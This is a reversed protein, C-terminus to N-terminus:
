CPTAPPFSKKSKGKDEFFPNPPIAMDDDPAPISHITCSCIRALELCHLVGLCNQSCPHYWFMKPFVSCCINGCNALRGLSSLNSGSPCVEYTAAVEEVSRGKLKWFCRKISALSMWVSSVTLCPARLFSLSMTQLEKSSEPKPRDKFVPAPLKLSSCTSWFTKLLTNTLLDVPVNTLREFWKNAAEVTTTQAAHANLRQMLHTKTAHICQVNSATQDHHLLQSVFMVPPLRKTEYQQHLCTEKTKMSSWDHSSRRLNMSPMSAAAWVLTAEWSHCQTHKPPTSQWVKRAANSLWEQAYEKKRTSMNSTQPCHQISPNSLWSNQDSSERQLRCWSICSPCSPSSADTKAKPPVQVHVRDDSPKPWRITWHVHAQHPLTQKVQKTPPM